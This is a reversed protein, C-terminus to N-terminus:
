IKFMNKRIMQNVLSFRNLKYQVLNRGNTSNTRICFIKKQDVDLIFYQGSESLAPVNLIDFTLTVVESNWLLSSSISYQRIRLSPLIRFYQTFSFNVHLIDLISIRKNLIETEYLSDQGLNKLKTEEKENKCL